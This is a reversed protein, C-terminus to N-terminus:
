NFLILCYNYTTYINFLKFFLHHLRLIFCCLKWNQGMNVMLSDIVERSFYYDFDQENEKKYKNILRNVIAYCEVRSLFNNEEIVCHLEWFFWNFWCKSACQKHFSHLETCLWGVNQKLYTYLMGKEFSSYFKMKIKEKNALFRRFM